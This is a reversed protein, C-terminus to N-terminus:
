GIWEDRCSSLAARWDPLRLGYVAELKKGSLTSSMPRDAPLPYESTPIPRLEEFRTRVDKPLGELIARAFGYWTTTSTSSLNYVGKTDTLCEGLSPQKGKRTVHCARALMLATTEAIMRSWTPSGTQDNVVKLVKERRALRLMTLFFNTGRTGYVWSVRLILFSGDVAEVARDGALKTRGYVNIPAPHDTERYPSSTNGDFVHDTSYHVLGAGTRAAEEALIGPAVGNIAMAVDPEEEARDVNTYAAANVILSPRVESVLAHIADPETLDVSRGKTSRSVAVLEGLPALTRKLEWGVQGTSGILLIRERRPM